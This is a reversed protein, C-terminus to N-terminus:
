QTAVCRVEHLRKLSSGLLDFSCKEVMIPELGEKEIKDYDPCTARTATWTANWFILRSTHDIYVPLDDCYDTSLVTDSKALDYIVLGRPGPGTGEDILLDHEKMALFWIGFYDFTFVSSDGKLLVVSDEDTFRESKFIITCEAGDQGTDNIFVCYHAYRYMKGYQGSYVQASDAGNVRPRIWKPTQHFSRTQQLVCTGRESPQEQIGITVFMATLFLLNSIM